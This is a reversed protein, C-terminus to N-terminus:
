HGVVNTHSLCDVIDELFGDSGVVGGVLEENPIPLAVFTMMEVTKGRERRMADLTVSGKTDVLMGGVEFVRDLLAIEYSVDVIRERKRV